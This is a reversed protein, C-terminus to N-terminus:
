KVGKLAAKTNRYGLATSLGDIEAALDPAIEIQTESCLRGYGKLFAKIADRMVESEAAITVTERTIPELSEVGYTLEVAKRATALMEETLGGSYHNQASAMILEAFFQRASKNPSSM